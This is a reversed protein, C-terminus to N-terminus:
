HSGQIISRASLGVLKHLAFRGLTALGDELNALLSVLPWTSHQLYTMTRADAYAAFSLNTNEAFTYTSKNTYLQLNGEAQQTFDHEIYLLWRLPLSINLGLHM